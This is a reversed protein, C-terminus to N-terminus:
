GGQAHRSLYSSLQLTVDLNGHGEGSFRIDIQKIRILIPFNSRLLNLYEGLAKFDCSINMTFPLEDVDYSPINEQEQHRSAPALSKVEIKFKKAGAMLDDLINQESVPLKGSISKLDDQLERVAQSMERGATLNMIYAIQSEVSALASKVAKFKRSQPNYIFVWFFFLFAASVAFVSLIKKQEKTWNSFGGSLIGSLPFKM